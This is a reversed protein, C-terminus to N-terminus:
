ISLPSLLSSQKNVKKIIVPSNGIPDISTIPGMPYYKRIIKENKVPTIYFFNYAAPISGHALNPMPKVFVHDPEAMLVYEEKIKAEQLWQVFAWPRNLVVYGQLLSLGSIILM